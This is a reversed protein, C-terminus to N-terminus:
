LTFGGLFNRKYCLLSANSANYFNEWNFNSLFKLKPPKQGKKAEFKLKSITFENAGCNKNRYVPQAMFHHFDTSLHCFLELFVFVSQTKYMYVVIRPPWKSYGAM